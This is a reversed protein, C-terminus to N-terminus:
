KEKQKWRYGIGWEIYDAQAFHSKLTLNFLLHKSAQYRLGLRSYISSIEVYKTYFYYGANFILALRNYILDHSVHIGSRYLDSATANKNEDYYELSTAISQDYFLDIGIGVREIHNLRREANVAISYVYYINQDHRRWQKLGGSAVVSYTYYRTLTTPPTYKKYRQSNFYYLLGTSATVVNIGLNPEKVRGNSCHSFYLGNILELKDTLQIRSNGGFKFFVNTHTGIAVQKYNDDIDFVKTLYSLGFDMEVNLGFKNTRGILPVNIFSYAGHEYGMIEPNKYDCLFYGLGIKPYNYLQEWLHNGAVEKGVKMEFASPHGTVVYEIASHHPMIFGYHYNMEVFIANSTDRSSQSLTFNTTIILIISIYYIFFRYM